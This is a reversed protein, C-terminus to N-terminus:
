YKESNNVGRFIFTRLKASRSRANIKLEEKTATIPKRM